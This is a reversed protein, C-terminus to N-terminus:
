ISKCPCNPDDCWRYHEKSFKPMSDMVQSFAEREITDTVFDSVIEGFRWVFERIFWDKSIEIGTYGCKGGHEKRKAIALKKDEEYYLDLFEKLKDNIVKRM